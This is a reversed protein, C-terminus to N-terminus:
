RDGYIKTRKRDPGNAMAQMRLKCARRRGGPSDPNLIDKWDDVGLDARLYFDQLERTERSEPSQRKVKSCGGVDIIDDPSRLASATRKQRTTTNATINKANNKAGRPPTKPMPPTRAAAAAEGAAQRAEDERTIDECAAFIAEEAPTM